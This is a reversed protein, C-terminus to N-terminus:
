EPKYMNIRVFSNGSAIELHNKDNRIRIKLINGPNQMKNKIAQLM